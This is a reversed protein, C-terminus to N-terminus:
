AVERVSLGGCRYHTGTITATILMDGAAAEGDGTSRHEVHVPQESAYVVGFSEHLSSSVRTGYWMDQAGGAPVLTHSIHTPGGLALLDNDIRATLSEGRSAATGPSVDMGDETYSTSLSSNTSRARASGNAYTSSVGVRTISVNVNSGNVATSMGSRHPQSPSVSRSYAPAAGGLIVRAPNRNTQAGASQATARDFRTSINARASHSGTRPSPPLDQPSIAPISTHLVDDPSM